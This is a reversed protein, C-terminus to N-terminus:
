AAKRGFMRLKSMLEEMQLSHAKMRQEMQRYQQKLREDVESLKQSLEAKKLEISQEKLASWESLTQSFAEYEQGIRAKVTQFDERVDHGYTELHQEARKFKMAVEAKQITFDPVRKLESTLGVKSLGLILWKTPDFQWWKVGNRYDYQFIHHFNHYGEGWTVLALWFNDRATNEDTYPQSGFMHALSNIFFTVHHSIVLRLLGALLVVGWFDNVLYGVLATLGFNTLLVLPIYHDHQFKVMPDNLLDPANRYDAHGSPYNRLMWGLHSFWFGRKASYPDLDVHDVHRHHTRHGSAWFLVSNQIAMTGGIMLFLRVPWSAKYARHAWLRHYGATIGLGNWALFLAFSVWAAVSFDHSLAYWPILILAALPTLGLVLAGPWNIPANDFSTGVPLEPPTVSPDRSIDNMSVPNEITPNLLFSISIFALKVLPDRIVSTGIPKPNVHRADHLSRRNKM